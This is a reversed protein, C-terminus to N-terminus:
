KLNPRMTAFAQEMLKRAGAESFVDGYFNFVQGAGATMKGLKSLPIVAESEGGEGIMALTPRTVIGGEALMAIEPLKPTGPVKGAIKNAQKIVWNIKEIIWNISAKITNKIAEWVSSTVNAMGQLSSDWAKGLLEAGTTFIAKLAEFLFAVNQKIQTWAIEGILLINDWAGKWDGRLVALVVRIAAAIIELQTKITTFILNWVNVAIDRIGFLNEEWVYVFADIWTKITLFLDDIIPLVNDKIWIWAESFADRMAATQENTSSGLNMLWDIVDKIGVVLYSIVPIIAGGIMEKLDGWANLAQKQIGESTAAMAANVGKYNGDLIEAMLAVRETQNGLQWAADQAETMVIGSQKLPAIQGTAIAVGLKNATDQLDQQTADVGKNAVALDLMRPTLLEIQDKTMAFSALQSQGHIVADGEIVGLKQMADAQNKLAQIEDDRLNSVNKGITELRTSALEAEKYAQTVNRIGSIVAGVAFAGGILKGWKGIVSGSKNIKDDIKDVGDTIKKGGSKMEEVGSKIGKKFDAIDMKMKGVVAGADFAM